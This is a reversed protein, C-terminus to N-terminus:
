ELQRYYYLEDTESLEPHFIHVLDALVAAMVMTRIKKDSM